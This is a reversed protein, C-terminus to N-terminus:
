LGLGNAAQPGQLAKVLGEVVGVQEAYYEKGHLPLKAWDAPKEIEPHLPFGAEYQIKVFDMGTFRFYEKHKDIAPQGVHEDEAFHIFFAAPVYGPRKTEDLLELVLQRKSKVTTPEGRGAARPNQTCGLLAEADSAVAAVAAGGAAKLIERRKM